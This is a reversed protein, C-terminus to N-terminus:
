EKPPHAFRNLLNNSAKLLMPRAWNHWRYVKREKFLSLKFWPKNEKSFPVLGVVESEVVFFAMFDDDEDDYYTETDELWTFRDCCDLTLQPEEPGKIFSLAIDAIESQLKLSITNPYKQQFWEEFCNLIIDRDTFDASILEM